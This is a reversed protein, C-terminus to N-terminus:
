HFDERDRVLFAANAFRRRGDIEGGAEGRAAPADEEDIEVRLAIGGAGEGGPHFVRGGEVAGEGAGGLDTGADGRGAQRLEGEDRGVEVQGPQFDFHRPHVVVQLLQAAGQLGQAFRVGEVEGDEIAGGESPM